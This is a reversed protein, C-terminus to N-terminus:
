LIDKVAEAIIKNVDAIIINFKTEYEFYQRIKEDSVLSTYEEQLKDLKEQNQTGSQMTQLQVEYRLKEFNELKQKRESDEYIEKKINYFNKYEESEKIERALNNATDYINM